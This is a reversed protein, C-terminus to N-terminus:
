LPAELAVFITNAREQTLAGAAVLKTAVQRWTAAEPHCPRPNNRFAGLWAVVQSETVALTAAFETPTFRQAFIDWSIGPAM